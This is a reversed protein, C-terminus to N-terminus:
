AVRVKMKGTCGVRLLVTLQWVTLLMRSRLKMEGTCQANHPRVKMKSAQLKFQFDRLRQQFNMFVLVRKLGM